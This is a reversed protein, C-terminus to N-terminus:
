KTSFQKLNMWTTPWGYGTGADNLRGLRTIAALEIPGYVHPFLAASTLHALKAEELPTAAEFKTEAKLLAEDIELLWLPERAEYFYDNAVPLVSEETACHVFGIKELTLPRYQTQSMQQRLESELVLHYIMRKMGSKLITM